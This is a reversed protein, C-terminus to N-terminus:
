RAHGSRRPAMVCMAVVAAVLLALLASRAPRDARGAPLLRFEGDGYLVVAAWSSAPRGQAIADIKAQRLADALTAGAAVHRYFDDFLSAADEDRIPWRSGIVAQAGAAFFARALSLVGDGSRVVGDATRCASLVVARGSLDLRAIERAQLLGDERADGASLLVASREPHADDAVAHAAFHLLGYRSLDGAKLAQESARGGVRVDVAGLHRAMARTERRAHPLAGLRLGRRLAGNREAAAGAAPIGLSPDAFALARRRAPVSHTRWHRWLTASPAVEMQYRAALHPARRSARLADFPLTHLSGDPILVLQTISRPLWSLAPQLLLEYLRVAAGQELGDSRSLLGTFIPVLPALAARDPLRFVARDHRTVVFLWSGGGFQGDYTDWLGVQFALMAEHEGLTAQVDTLVGFAPEPSPRDDRSARQRDVEQVRRELADLEALRVRREGGALRPDTLQRQVASIAHLVPTASESRDPGNSLERRHVQELLSRGRMREAIAFARELDAGGGRELLRGAFWYYDHTWASFLEATSDAGEQLRRLREVAAIAADADHLAQPRTLAWSLRMRRGASFAETRPNNSRATAELARREAEGSAVPDTRALLAALVWSCQAEDHPQRLKAALAVCQRAHTSAAVFDEPRSALLQAMASHGKVVLDDSQSAVATTLAREFLALLRPRAGPSPLHTEKIATTNALNFQANARLRGEGAAAALADLQEFTALAEDLRGLRTAVAGLTGLTTRKLRYPGDPFVASESQKLLRYALGLDGGSAQLQAARATWARAQLLPSTSHEAIAAIREIEREAEAVRGAPFLVDRLSIRALVEGEAHGALRFADAVRRYLSEARAPDRGRLVHGLTLPLWLHAPHAEILAELELPARDWLRGAVTVQYFCYSSEEDDPREALVQRCHAFPDDAPAASVPPTAAVAAAVMASLAAALRTTRM